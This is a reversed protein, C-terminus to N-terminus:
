HLKTGGNNVLPKWFLQHGEGNVKTKKVAAGRM